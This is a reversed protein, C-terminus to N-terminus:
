RADARLQRVSELLAKAPGDPDIRAIRALGRERLESRLLPDSCIRELADRWARASRPDALIAAGDCAEPLGGADSALVPAGCAMAEIAPLGYGEALSPVAVTLAGSYLERLEEDSPHAREHPARMQAFVREDEDSLTGAVLLLPAEDAGGFAAEFAQFLMAANKRREPGAVFLVYQRDHSTLRVPQWFPDLAPPAVRIRPPDVGFLRQLESAGWKSVTFIRDAKGLARRIPNQERWRAVAGGHAYTFAFPDHITVISAAHPRFRMGNWPYWVADVRERALDGPAIGEDSRQRFVLVIEAEGSRRLGELTHRVVRGMGRRDAALNFADVALKM